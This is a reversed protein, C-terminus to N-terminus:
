TRLYFGEGPGVRVAMQRRRHRRLNLSRRQAVSCKGEGYKKKFNRRIGFTSYKVPVLASGKGM